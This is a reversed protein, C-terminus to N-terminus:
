KRKRFFWLSALLMGIAIGILLTWAFPAIFIGIFIGLVLLVGVLPLMSDGGFFARHYVPSLFV